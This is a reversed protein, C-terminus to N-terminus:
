YASSIIEINSMISKIDGMDVKYLDGLSYAIRFSQALKMTTEFDYGKDMAFGYGAVTYGKDEGLSVDKYYTSELRYAKDRTLVVSGDEYLDVLAIEIGSEIIGRALSVVEEWNNIEINTLHELESKNMKVMFPVGDLGFFLGKGRIDLIFRKGRNNAMTILNYYIDEDLGEPLDGLGCIISHNELIRTYTEFFKNLDERTVRPSVGCISTIVKEDKLLVADRRSEDKLRIFEFDINERKIEDLIYDGSYGGLFGALSVQSALNNLIRALSIGRGGLVNNTKGAKNKIRPLLSDLYYHTELIPDLEISLIM